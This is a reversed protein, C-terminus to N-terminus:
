YNIDNFDKGDIAKFGDWFTQNYTNRMWEPAQV